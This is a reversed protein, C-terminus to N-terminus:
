GREAHVSSYRHHPSQHCCVGVDDATMQSATPMAVKGPLARLRKWHGEHEQYMWTEWLAEQGPCRYNVRVYLTSPDSQWHVKNLLECGPHEAQLEQAIPPDAPGCAAVLVLSAIVGVLLASNAIGSRRTM